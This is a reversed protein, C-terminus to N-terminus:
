RSPKIEIDINEEAAIKELGRRIDIVNQSSPIDITAQLSFLALGTVPANTVRTDLARINIRREALFASIRHVIGPHDMSFAAIDYPITDRPATESPAKTRRAQVALGADGAAQPAERLLRDISAEDGSVLMLMAFEGGLIAMRSDEINCGCRGIFRSIADVLGTRDPGAATFMAYQAM